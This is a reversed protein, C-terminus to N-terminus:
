ARFPHLNRARRADNLAALAPQHKAILKLLQSQSCRLRVSARHVDLGAAVIVDLAEALMAPFDRHEANCAIRGEVVRSKWLESRIEGIPVPTRVSVALALRLRFLAVRKNQEASRREGAHAHIGTPNHHLEVLTQVRNRHQGGPGSSRGRQFQCQQLLAGDDLTAPHPSAVCVMEIQNGSM